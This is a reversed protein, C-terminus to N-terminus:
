QMDNGFLIHSWIFMLWRNQPKAITLMLSKVWAYNVHAIEIMFFCLHFGSTRMRFESSLTGWKKIGLTGKERNTSQLSPDGVFVLIYPDIANWNRHNSPCRQIQPELAPPTPSLQWTCSHRTHPNSDFGVAWLKAMETCPWLIEILWVATPVSCNWAYTHSSNSAM